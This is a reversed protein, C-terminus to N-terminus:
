HHYSRVSQPCRNSVQLYSSCAMLVIRHAKIYKEEAALTCDVLIDHKYLYDFMSIFASHHKEWKLYYDDEEMKGNNRTNKKFKLKFVYFCKYIFLLGKFKLSIM